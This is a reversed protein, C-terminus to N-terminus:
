AGLTSWSIMTPGGFIVLTYDYSAPVANSLPYVGGYTTSVPAFIVEGPLIEWHGFLTEGATMPEQIDPVVGVATMVLQVTASKRGDNSLTLGYVTGLGTNVPISKAVAGLVKAIRGSPM